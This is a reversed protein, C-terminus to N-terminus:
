KIKGFKDGWEGNRSRVPGQSPNTGHGFPLHEKGGQLLGWGPFASPKEVLHTSSIHAQTALDLREESLVLLEAAIQLRGHGHGLARNVIRGGHLAGTRDD